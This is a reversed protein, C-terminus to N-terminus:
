LAVAFKVLSREAEPIFGLVIDTASVGRAILEDAIELETGNQQVWVKGDRIDFHLLVSYAFHAGHWGVNILQYHNHVFDTVVQREIDPANAYPRAALQELFDTVIAQYQAVKDM